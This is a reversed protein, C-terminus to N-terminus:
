SLQKKDIMHKNKDYWSYLTKIAEDIPTFKFNKLEKLLLSNDGSYEISSENKKIKIDLKKQSITIIKKAITEFTHTRGTCINYVSNKPKNDIVWKIIKILDDIYLFDYVKNHNITIPMDHVAMCCTNPIFRYRWDDYKGFVGFLRLNYINQSLLAHKTMIYKSFGYQDEPVHKDFYDEKMKPKWNNRNFEAGSGFFIMKNFYDKCRAINFFMKLNNELVLAPDKISTKPAADYTATHIVTDFRNKKIYEFVLSPDLLNLVKRNCLQITYQTNLQEYLSRAIFGDGGTILLKM